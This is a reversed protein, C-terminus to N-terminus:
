ELGFRQLQASWDGRSKLIRECFERVAGRGGRCSLREHVVTDLEPVADAPAAAYGCVALVRADQLDDGIYALQDDAFGHEAQLERLGSIKDQRGQICADVHMERARRSVTESHRGTLFGIKLGARRCLALGHGDKADYVKFELNRGGIIIGGDTLVGDVDVLVWTLKSFDVSALDRGSM